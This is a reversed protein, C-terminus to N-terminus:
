VITLVFQVGLYLLISYAGTLVTTEIMSSMNESLMAKM